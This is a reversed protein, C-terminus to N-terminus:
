DEKMQKLRKNEVMLKYQNITRVTKVCKFAFIIVVFIITGIGTWFGIMKKASSREVKFVFFQEIFYSINMEFKFVSYDLQSCNLKQCSFSFVSINTSNSINLNDYIIQKQTFNQDYVTLSVPIYKFSYYQDYDDCYNNRTLHLSVESDSLVAVGYNWCTYIPHCNYAKILYVFDGKHYFMIDLNYISVTEYQDYDYYLMDLCTRKQLGKMHTCSFKISRLTENFHTETKTIYLNQVGSSSQISGTLRYQIQDYQLSNITKMTQNLKDLNYELILEYGIDNGYNYLYLQKSTFVNSINDINTNIPYPLIIQKSGQIFIIDLKSVIFSVLVIQSMDQKSISIYEFYCYQQQYSDVIWGTSLNYTFKDIIIRIQDVYQNANQQKTVLQSMCNTNPCLNIYAITGVIKIEIWDFCHSLDTKLEEYIQLSIISQYLLNSVTITAFHDSYYQALDLTEPINFQIQNHNNQNYEIAKVTYINQFIQSGLTLNFQVDGNLQQCNSILTPKLDATIVHKDKDLTLKSNIQYCNEIIILPQSIQTLIIIVTQIM